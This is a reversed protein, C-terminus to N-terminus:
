QGDRSARPRRSGGRTSQRKKRWLDDDHPDFRVGAPWDDFVFRGEETLQYGRQGALKRLLGWQASTLNVLREYLLGQLKGETVDIADRSTGHQRHDVELLNPLRLLFAAAIPTVTCSDRPGNVTLIYVVRGVMRAHPRDDSDLAVIFQRLLRVAMELAAAEEGHAQRDAQTPGEQPGGAHDQVAGDIEEEDGAQGSAAVLDVAEAARTDERPDAEPPAADGPRSTSARSNRARKAM